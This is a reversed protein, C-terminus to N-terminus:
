YGVAKADPDRPDAAGERLRSRPDIVIGNMRGMSSTAKIKHGMAELDKQLTSKLLSREITLVDPLWQHHIRGADVAEAIDMQFDILNLVVQFVTNIITRGGISGICAWPKGNKVLITPTMSSLMRKGPEVLNPMTGILGSTDTVGPVPNFDGMENNLVIGTGQAVIRSGYWYELTYTVSVMTGEADVVSYHTTENNEYSKELDKPNSTSAKELSIGRRLEEAYKKSTLRQIPMRPNFDPDGLFQARDRYARRMAETLLHLYSDSNHKMSKLDYGELINLMELLAVGGSSPPAMSFVDVGRYTGHLPVREVAQYQLLDEETILGKNRKMDVAILRSTEGKYFGDRGQQQLRKLTKALDPQRWRDGAEYPITDRQFFIKASSPYKKFDKRLNRFDNGMARSLVFGEEALRLASATVDNWSKTGYKKLALDFGAVTGPVGVSRYGEHNSDKSYKGKADIFMNKHVALPAKERFDIATAKGEKTVIVMFGGGGINGAAPHVVALALGTAVAADIANGGNRLMAVGAESALAHSSVVMGKKSRVPIKAQATLSFITFCLFVTSLILTRSIRTWNM